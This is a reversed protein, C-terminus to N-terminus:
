LSLILKCVGRHFLLIKKVCNIDLCNRHCPCLNKHKTIMTLQTGHPLLQASAKAGLSLIRHLRKMGGLASGHM